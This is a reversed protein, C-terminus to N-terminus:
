AGPDANVMRMFSSPPKVDPDLAPRTGPEPDRHSVASATKTARASRTSFIALRTNLQDVEQQAGAKAQDL